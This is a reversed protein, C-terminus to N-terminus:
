FDSQLYELPSELNNGSSGLKCKVYGIAFSRYYVSPSVYILVPNEPEPQTSNPGSYDFNEPVFRVSHEHFYPQKKHDFTWM